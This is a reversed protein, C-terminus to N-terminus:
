YFLSAKKITIIIKVNNSVILFVILYLLRIHNDKKM